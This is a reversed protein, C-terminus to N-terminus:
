GRGLVITHRVLWCGCPQPELHWGRPRHRWALPPQLKSRLLQKARETSSCTGESRAEVSSRKWARFPTSLRNQDPDSTCQTPHLLWSRLQNKNLLRRLLSFYLVVKHYDATTWCSLLTSDGRCLRALADADDVPGDHDSAHRDMGTADRALRYTLGDKLNGAKGGYNHKQQRENKLLIIRACLASRHGCV